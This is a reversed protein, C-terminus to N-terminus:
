MKKRSSVCILDVTAPTSFQCSGAAALHLTYRQRSSTAVNRCSDASDSASVHRRRGKGGSEILDEAPPVLKINDNYMKCTSSSSVRPLLHLQRRLQLPIAIPSGKHMHPAHLWVPWARGTRETQHPGRVAILKGRGMNCAAGKKKAYSIKATIRKLKKNKPNRHPTMTPQLRLCLNDDPKHHWWRAERRTM